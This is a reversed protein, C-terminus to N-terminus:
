DRFESFFTFCSNFDVKDDNRKVDFELEFYPYEVSIM